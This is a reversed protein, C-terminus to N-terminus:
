STPIASPVTAAAPAPPPPPTPLSGVSKVLSGVSNPTSQQQREIWEKRAAERKKLRSFCSEMEQKSRYKWLFDESNTVYFSRYTRVCIKIELSDQSSVDPQTKTVAAPVNRRLFPAKM